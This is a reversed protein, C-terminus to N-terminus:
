SFVGISWRATGLRIGSPCVPADDHGVPEAGAVGLRSLDPQLATVLIAGTRAYRM